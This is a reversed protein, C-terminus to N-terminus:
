TAAKVSRKPEAAAIDEVARVAKKTLMLKRHSLLDGVNLMNAPLIKTKRINRTSKYINIDPEATVILVSTDLGLAELIQAMESTKPEKFKIKDIVIMGNESAKASLVCRLALRRMKKPMEQRHDRPHPGFIVGGGRLLPSSETGRRARGTGKQRFPKRGGGSVQSRTKTSSTGQRANALHRVLAQHVVAQNMPVAFVDDRLKVNGIVEGRINHVPVQAM